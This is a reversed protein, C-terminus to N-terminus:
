VTGVMMIGLHVTNNQPIGSWLGGEMMVRYSFSLSMQLVLCSLPVMMNNFVAWWTSRSSGVM